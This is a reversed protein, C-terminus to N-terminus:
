ARDERPSCDSCRRCRAADEATARRPPWVVATGLRYHSCQPDVHTITPRSRNASVWLEESM